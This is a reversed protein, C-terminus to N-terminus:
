KGFILKNQKGWRKYTTSDKQNKPLNNCSVEYCKECLKEGDIAKEGCKYCLGFSTWESRPIKKRQYRRKHKIYHELCRVTSKECQPKGCEVCLGNKKREERLRKMSERQKKRLQKKYDEGGSEIRKQAYEAEIALCVECRVKGPSANWQGCQVCIGM